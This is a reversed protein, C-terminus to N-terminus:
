LNFNVTDKFYEFIVQKLVKSVIETSFSFKCGKGVFMKKIKDKYKRSLENVPFGHQVAYSLALLTKDNYDSLSMPYDNLYIEPFFGDYQFRSIECVPFEFGERSVEVRTLSGTIKLDSEKKKNYIKFRKDGTGISYTLDDSFCSFTHNKRKGSKDFFIDLINVKLDLAIDYNKILWSRSLCLIYKVIDNNKLKNPNFEITLNYKVNSNDLVRKETNHMYGLYFTNEFDDCFVYNYFFNMARASTYKKEIHKAYCTNIRFELETFTSYTIYTKLRLMDISYTVGSKELSFFYM